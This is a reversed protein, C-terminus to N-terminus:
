IAMLVQNSQGLPSSNIRSPPPLPSLSFILSTFFPSIEPTKKTRPKLWARIPWIQLIFVSRRLDSLPTTDPHAACEERSGVVIVPASFRARDVLEVLSADIILIDVQERAHVDQMQPEELLHESDYRDRPFVDVNSGRSLLTDRTAPGIAAVAAGRTAGYAVGHMVANSSVFIVIDADPLASADRSIDDAPRPIIEIVPFCWPEGGASRIAGGLKDAQSSPRTVLVGM